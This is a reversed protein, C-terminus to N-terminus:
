MLVGSTLKLLALVTNEYILLGAEWDSAHGDRPQTALLILLCPFLRVCGTRDRFASGATDPPRHALRPSTSRAPRLESAPLSRCEGALRRQLAAKRQRDPQVPDAALVPRFREPRRKPAPRQHSEM